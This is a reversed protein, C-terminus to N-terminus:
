ELVTFSHTKDHKLEYMDNAHESQSAEWVIDCTLRVEETPINDFESIEKWRRERCQKPIAGHDSLVHQLKLAETNLSISSCM